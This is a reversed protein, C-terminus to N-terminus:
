ALDDSRASAGRHREDVCLLGVGSVSCLIEAFMELLTHWQTAPNGDTAYTVGLVAVMRWSQQTAKGFACTVLTHGEVFHDM